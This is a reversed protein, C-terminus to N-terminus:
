FFAKFSAYLCVTRIAKNKTIFVRNYSSLQRAKSVELGPLSMEIERRALLFVLKIYSAPLRIEALKVVGSPTLIHCFLVKGSLLGMKDCVDPTLSFM